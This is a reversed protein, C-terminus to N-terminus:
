NLLRKSSEPDEVGTEAMLSELACFIIDRTCRDYTVLNLSEQLRVSFKKCLPM